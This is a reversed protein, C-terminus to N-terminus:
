IKAGALRLDIIKLQVERRGNFENIELYYVLDVRDGIKLSQHAAAAGFALAWVSASGSALRFKIHQKDAGMTVIDDLRLDYSVFRPQPNNQGYPALVDLTGALALSAESLKLEADIALKPHLQSADLQQAAVSLIKARFAAL